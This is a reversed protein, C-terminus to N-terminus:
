WETGEGGLIMSNNPIATERLLVSDSEQPWINYPSPFVDSNLVNYAKHEKQYQMQEEHTRKIYRMLYQHILLECGGQLIFGKKEKFLLEM